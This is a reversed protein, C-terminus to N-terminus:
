GKVYALKEAVKGDRVKIVDVGHISGDTGDDNKWTYIWRM